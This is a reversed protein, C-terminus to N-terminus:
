DEVLPEKTYVKCRLETSGPVSNIDQCDSCQLKRICRTIGKHKSHSVIHNTVIMLLQQAIQLM